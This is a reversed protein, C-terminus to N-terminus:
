RRRSSNYSDDLITAGTDSVLVHLRGDIEASGTAVGAESLTM